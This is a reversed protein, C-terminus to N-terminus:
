LMNYGDETTLDQYGMEFPFFLFVTEATVGLGWVCQADGDIESQSHGTKCRWECRQLWWRWAAKHSSVHGHHLSLFRHSPPDM